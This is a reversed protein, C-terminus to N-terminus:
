VVVAFIFLRQSPLQMFIYLKAYMCIILATSVHVRPSQYFLRTAQPVAHRTEKYRM